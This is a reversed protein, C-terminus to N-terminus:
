FSHLSTISVSEYPLLGTETEFGPPMIPGGFSLPTIVEGVIGYAAIPTAVLSPPLTSQDGELVGAKKKANKM